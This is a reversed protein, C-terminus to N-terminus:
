HTTEAPLALTERSQAIPPVTIIFNYVPPAKERIEKVEVRTLTSNEFLAAIRPIRARQLAYGQISMSGGPMAKVETIWVGGLDAVGKAMHETVRSWRDAGPVLSDYVSLATYFRSIQQDLDVIAEKIRENEAVKEQLQVLTQRKSGVERNMESYRVTFYLTSFFILALAVYGHWALKFTRQSERIVEPLLNVGYFAKHDDQLIKWATAIPIAFEPIKEQVDPPLASTNLYPTRLYEVEVDPLQQRMFQDFGIHQSQGALLIRDIRPIGMNDQELLLRSYVTNQINSSDYGEGLVPAFHLFESGKMFILRSFDVGVYILVTIEEDAFGFNARALNILALDAIDVLPIRPLRKGLFPQVEQLLHLLSTGDERVVCVLNKEVSPFFDMADLPPQVPRVNRLEDIVRLKLKNGKLGYDNELTHYYISPEAVAYGLVYESTDFKSLLALLVSNNDTSSDAETEVTPLAFAEANDSIMTEAEITAVQREELKKVLTATHLEEVVIERKKIALKALKLELGDVFIGVASRKNGRLSAM